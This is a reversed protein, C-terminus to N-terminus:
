GRLVAQVHDLKYSMATLVSRMAAPNVRRQPSPALQMVLHNLTSQIDRLDREIPTLPRRHAM